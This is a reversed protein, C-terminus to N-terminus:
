TLGPRRRAMGLRDRINMGILGLNVAGAVVELGPIANNFPDQPWAGINPLGSVGTGGAPPM